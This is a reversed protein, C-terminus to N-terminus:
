SSRRKWETQEKGQETNYVGQKLKRIEEAADPSRVIAEGVLFANAGMAHFRRVDAGSSIGSEVVKIADPPAQPLLKAATELDVRLSALDRNNIGIVTAGSAAAIGMEEEDHVEVLAELGYEAALRVMEATKEGLVGVILLVLDAGNARSEAVMYEDLVFDKRLVPLDGCAAAAESLDRLTGGFFRNETLVSVSCAGGAAYSRATDAADLDKRIWGRSPSARKIEAIIGPGAGLFNRIDRRRSKARAMAAIEPFALAVKRAELDEQVSSVIQRLYETKRTV